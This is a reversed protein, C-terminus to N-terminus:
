APVFGILDSLGSNQKELFARAQDRTSASMLPKRSKKYSTAWRIIRKAQYPLLLHTLAQNVSSRTYFTAENSHPVDADIRNIGLFETVKNLESRDSSIFARFDVFHIQSRDFSKLYREIQVRYCSRDLFKRRFNDTQGNLEALFAEDISLPEIGHRAAHWYQSIARELPDRLIWLIKVDPVMSKIRAPVEPLYSYGPTDDGVLAGPKAKPLLQKYGEVGTDFRNAHNFFHTETRDIAIQESRMLWHHLSTTGAKMSGVILFDVTHKNEILEM